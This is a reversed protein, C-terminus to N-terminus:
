NEDDMSEDTPSYLSSFDYHIHPFERKLVAESQKIEEVTTKGQKLAVGLVHLLLENNELARKTKSM